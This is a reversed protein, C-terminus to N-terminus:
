LRGDFKYVEIGNLLLHYTVKDIAQQCVDKEQIRPFADDVRYFTMEAVRYRNGETEQVVDFGYSVLKSLFDARLEDDDIAAMIRKFIRFVSCTSDEYERSMIEYRVVVLAGPATASLQALSNVKVSNANLSATKVEYWKDGDSFDKNTGDIGSWAKVAKSVGIEPMLFTELFFLEGLLGIMQEETLTSREQRFMKRWATFRNKLCMVASESDKIPSSELVGVLDDCLAFYVAEASPELLDFLIWYEDVEQVCSVRIAKTSAIEPPKSGSLFALRSNRQASLGYYIRLPTETSLLALGEKRSASYKQKLTSFLEEFNRM